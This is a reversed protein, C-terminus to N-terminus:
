KKFCYDMHDDVMGVAQMFSYVTTPGLFKFGRKMLDKGIKESLATSSPVETIDKYHNVIPKNDVYAWIFDSFSGFEKQIEIFRNANNITANIKLKHRIIGENNLLKNIKKDDYKSIINYDFNDFAMRMDERKKLITIWSLGSQMSELVLFEFLIRDDYVPVGWEEDHYVSELENKEAWECRKM